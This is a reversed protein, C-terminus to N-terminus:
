RPSRKKTYAKLPKDGLIAKLDALDALLAKGHASCYIPVHERRAFGPPLSFALGWM